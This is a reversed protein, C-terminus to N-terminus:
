GKSDEQVGSEHIWSPNNIPMEFKAHGFCLEWRSIVGKEWWVQEEGSRRFHCGMRGFGKSPGFVKFTMRTKKSKRVGWM